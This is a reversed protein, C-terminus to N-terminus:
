QFDIWNNWRFDYIWTFNLNCYRLDCIIGDFAIDNDPVQISFDFTCVDTIGSLIENEYEWVPYPEMEFLLDYDDKDNPASAHQFLITETVKFWLISLWIQLWMRTMNM